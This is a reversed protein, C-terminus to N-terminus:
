PESRAAQRGYAPRRFLILAAAIFVAAGATAQLPYWVLDAEPILLPVLAVAGAPAFIRGSLEFLAFLLACVTCATVASPLGLWTHLLLQLGAGLVAAAAILAFILGPAKRLGADPRSLEVFTVVLPPVILYTYGARVPLAAILLLAALLQVWKLAEGRLNRTRRSLVVPRRMGGGEMARQGLALLALMTLVAAPYVLSDAGLLVPLMCASIMPVLTTGTAFLCGAAFLFALAINGALPLPSFRVIAIGALAGGTMLLVAQLRTTHWVRKDVVWFGAALAAIEPFIVEREGALEAVAVMVTILALSFAYRKYKTSM